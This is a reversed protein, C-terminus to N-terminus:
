EKIYLMDYSSNPFSQTKQGAFIVEWEIFYLGSEDTDGNQWAFSVSGESANVIQAERSVEVDSGYLNMTFVVKEASTLDKPDGNETLTSELPPTLDGKKIEYDAEM